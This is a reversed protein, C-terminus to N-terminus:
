ECAELRALIDELVPIDSDGRTPAAPFPLSTSIWKRLHLFQAANHKYAPVPNRFTFSGLYQLTDNLEYFRPDGSAWFADRRSFEEPAFTSLGLLYDSGYMVMDIALDNGTLVKFSPRVENRLRLRQWELQRSLSSHKAGTCAKIQLLEKYVDLSYIMGFPAFMKGLEFALFEDVHEGIQRYAAVIDSDSQGTLGYSQFIIPTGGAAVVQDIGRRYADFDFRADPEDGVFVGGVFSGGQCCTSALDLAKQRQSADILNAYGTDMNIAPVLGAAFTREVHQCFGDWDPETTSQMPLLTASM